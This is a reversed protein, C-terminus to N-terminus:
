ELSPRPLLSTSKGRCKLKYPSFCQLRSSSHILQGEPSPNFLWLARIVVARTAKALLRIRFDDMRVNDFGYLGSYKSNFAVTLAKNAFSKSFSRYFENYSLKDVDRELEQVSM